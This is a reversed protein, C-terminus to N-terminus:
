RVMAHAWLDRKDRRIYNITTTSLCLFFHSLLTSFLILITAGTTTKHQETREDADSNHTAITRRPASLAIFCLASGHAHTLRMPRRIHQPYIFHSPQLNQYNSDGRVCRFPAWLKIQIGDPTQLSFQYAHVICNIM